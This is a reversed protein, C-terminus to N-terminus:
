RKRIRISSNSTTLDIDPGGGGIDGQLHDKSISGGHTTVDFDSDVGGHSTTADLRAGTSAPLRLEVPSNSTVVRMDPVKGDVEVDVHGNSTQVRVPWADGLGALRAEVPGNSTEAEFRGGRCEAKIPGNSTHLRVGGNQNDLDIPGNSTQVEAEGKVDTLHVPGNSTHLRVNGEVGDVRIPGNSTQILDLLVRRPVHITYTAGAGGHFFEPANTRVRVSDPDHSIDVHTDRLLGEDSAYKTGAIDVTNQDWGTIEVSGNQSEVSVRAGSNLPWSYHFDERFRGTDGWDGVVCSTLFSSAMALAILGLFRRM